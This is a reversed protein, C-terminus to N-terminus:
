GKKRKSAPKRKKATKAPAKAPASRGAPRASTPTAARAALLPLAQALTLTAPDTGKPVNANVAGHKVYPGYRGALVRVPEGDDPHAGLEKIAAQAARQPRGGGARREALASVARNLGVEFVEDASALNAYTGNHQVYPGYRGIGALIM